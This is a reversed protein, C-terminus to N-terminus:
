NKGGKATIKDSRVYDAINEPIIELISLFKEM